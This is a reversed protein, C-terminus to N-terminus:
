QKTEHSGCDKGAGEVPWGWGLVGPPVRDGFVEGQLM